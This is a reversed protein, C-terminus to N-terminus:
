VVVAVSFVLLFANDLGGLVLALFFQLGNHNSQLVV